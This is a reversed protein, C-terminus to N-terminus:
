VEKNRVRFACYLCENSCLNSIYLPAFIVIRRGYIANKVFNAAEFMEALLGPDSVPMLAAAEDPTLGVLGKAKALIERVRGADPRRNAALTKEIVADDIFAGSTQESEKM